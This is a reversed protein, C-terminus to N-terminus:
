PKEADSATDDQEKRLTFIGRDGDGSVWFGTAETMNTNFQILIREVLDYAGDFETLQLM